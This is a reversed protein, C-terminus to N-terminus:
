RRSSKEAVTGFVPPRPASPGQRSVPYRARSRARRRRPAGGAAGELLAAGRPRMPSFRAHHHGPDAADKEARAVRFRKAGPIGVVESRVRSVVAVREEGGLGAVRRDPRGECRIGLVEPTRVRTAITLKRPGVEVRHQRLEARGTCTSSFTSSYSNPRNPQAVSGSPFTQARAVAARSGSETRISGSCGTSWAPKSRHRRPEAPRGSAGARLADATTQESEHENFVGIVLRDCYALLRRVLPPPPSAPSCTSAPPRRM